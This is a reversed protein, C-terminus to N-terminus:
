FKIFKERISGSCIIFVGSPFDGPFLYGTEGPGLRIERMLRGDISNIRFVRDTLTSIEIPGNGMAFEYSNKLIFQQESINDNGMDPLLGRPYFAKILAWSTRGNNFLSDTQLLLRAANRMGMGSVMLPMSNMVIKVASDFGTEMALDYLAAGFLQGDIHTQSTIDDPYKRNNVLTRGAWFENHGDWNYVWGKQYPTYRSSYAVTMFDCIGEEISQREIGTYSNPIVHNFAAHTYEHVPADADEADDVGGDGFEITPPNVTPDFASEDAGFMAHADMVVTDRFDAFGLTDWWLSLEAIHYFANVEEFGTENRNLLFEGAVVAHEKKPPSIEAFSLYSNGLRFSDDSFSCKMDREVMLAEIEAYSSDGRDRYVGGYFVNGRSLPDPLFVRMKTATDKALYRKMDTEFEDDGDVPKYIRVGASDRYSCLEFAKAGEPRYWEYHGPPIFKPIKFDADKELYWSILTQGRHSLAAVQFGNVPIGQVLISYSSRSNTETIPKLKSGAPLYNALIAQLGQVETQSRTVRLSGWQASLACPGLLFLGIWRLM